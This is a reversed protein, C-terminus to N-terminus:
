HETLATTKTKAHQIGVLDEALNVARLSLRSGGTLQPSGNGAQISCSSNQSTSAPAPM